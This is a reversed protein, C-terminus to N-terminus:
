VSVANWLHILLFTCQAHKAIIDFCDKNGIRSQIFLNIPRM